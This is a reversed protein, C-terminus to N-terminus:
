LHMLRFLVDKSTHGDFEPGRELTEAFGTEDWTTNPLHYTIQKGPEMGIGMIYWGKLSSGDAHLRSRWVKQMDVREGRVSCEPCDYKLAKCLAIFLTVRHDYLEEFTHYGDFVSMSEPGTIIHDATGFPFLTHSSKIVADAGIITVTKM